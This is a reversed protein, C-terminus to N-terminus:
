PPCTQPAGGDGGDGADGADDAHSADEPPGADDPGADRLGADLPPPLPRDFPPVLPQVTGSAGDAQADGADVGSDAPVCSKADPAEADAVGGDSQQGGSSGADQFGGPEGVVPFDSVPGDCAALSGGAVALLCGRLVLGLLPSSTRVAWM